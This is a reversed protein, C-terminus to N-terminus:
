ARRPGADPDPDDGDDGSDATGQTIVGETAATPDSGGLLGALPSEASSGLGALMDEVDANLSGLQQNAQRQVESQADRFAAVILDTLTEIDDPDVVSRDLDLNRLEGSGTITVQVLGGGATGTVEAEALDQQAALMEQQMRQAEQLLRGMDFGGEGGPSDGGPPFM